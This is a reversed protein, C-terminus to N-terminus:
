KSSRRLIWDGLSPSIQLLAFLLRTYAPVILEKKKRRVAKEIKAALLEPPIGKLKVGAGADAASPDLGAAQSDYRQGADQRRIPGPCVFLCNVNTPGELRFQHSFAALAHKSTAYPAVNRWGTKAALSGINVISGSSKKLAPLAALTCRVATYFNIEMLQAYDQPQCDEFSIRTSKGVNNIWLDIGGFRSVVDNVANAVSDDQTVDAVVYNLASESQQAAEILRQENRALMVVTGGHTAFHNAIALGLGDSGGTIVIVKEKWHNM